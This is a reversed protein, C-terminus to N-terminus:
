RLVRLMAVSRKFDDSSIGAHITAIGDALHEAKSAVIKGGRMPWPAEPYTAAAWAIMQAKDPFKENVVQKVEKPTVQVLPIRSQVYGICGVAIGLSWSARASQAGSPVEVMCMRPKFNTIVNDLGSIIEGARRVDDSNKRIVKKGAKDAETQILIMDVIKVSGTAIEYDAVVLGVNAFAADMGLLRINTSVM